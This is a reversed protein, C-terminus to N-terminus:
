WIVFDLGLAASTLRMTGFCPPSPHPRAEIGVRYEKDSEEQSRNPCGASEWKIYAWIGCLEDPLVPLQEDPILQFDDLSEQVSASHVAVLPVHFNSDYLDYRCM